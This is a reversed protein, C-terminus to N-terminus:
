AAAKRYGRVFDGVNGAVIALLGGYVLISNIWLGALAAVAGGVGVWFPTLSGHAKASRYLLWLSLGLLLVYLPILFADNILFGAGIATLVSLAATVGLCCAAAFLAGFTSAMQKVLDKM